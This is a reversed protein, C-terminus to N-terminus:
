DEVRTKSGNSYPPWNQDAKQKTLTELVANRHEAIYSFHEDPIFSRGWERRKIMRQKGNNNFAATCSRTRENCSVTKSRRESRRDILKGCTRCISPITKGKAMCLAAWVLRWVPPDCASLPDYLDLEGDYFSLQMDRVQDNAIERALASCFFRLSEDDLYPEQNEDRAEVVMRYRRMGDEAGGDLGRAYWRVSSDEWMHFRIPNFMPPWYVENIDEVRIENPMIARRYDPIRVILDVSAPITFDEEYSPFRRDIRIVEEVDAFEGFGEGYALIACVRYVAECLAEYERLVDHDFDRNAPPGYRSVLRLYDDKRHANGIAVYILDNKPSKDGSSARKIEEELWRERRQTEAKEEEDWEGDHLGWLFEIADDQLPTWPLSMVNQLEDLKM